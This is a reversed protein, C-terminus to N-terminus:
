QLKTGDGSLKYSYKIYEEGLFSSFFFFRSDNYVNFVSFCLIQYFPVNWQSSSSQNKLKRSSHSKLSSLNDSKGQTIESELLWCYIKWLSYVESSDVVLHQAKALFNLFFIATMTITRSKRQFKEQLNWIFKIM